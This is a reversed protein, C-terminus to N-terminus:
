KLDDIIASRRQKLFDYIDQEHVDNGSDAADKFFAHIRDFEANVRDIMQKQFQALQPHQAALAEGLRKKEEEVWTDIEALAIEKEANIAREMEEMRHQRDPDTEPDSTKRRSKSKAPWWFMADWWGHAAARRKKCPAGKEQSCSWCLYLLVGIVGAAPIVFIM